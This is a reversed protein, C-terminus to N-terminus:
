GVTAAPTGSKRDVAHRDVVLPSSSGGAFALNPADLDMTATTPHRDPTKSSALAMQPM